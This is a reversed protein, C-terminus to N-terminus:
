TRTMAMAVSQALVAVALKRAHTFDGGTAPRAQSPLFTVIAATDGYLTTFEVVFPRAEQISM